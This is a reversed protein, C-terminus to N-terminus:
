DPVVLLMDAPSHSPSAGSHPREAATKDIALEFAMLQPRWALRVRCPQGICISCSCGCSDAMKTPYPQPHRTEILRALGTVLSEAYKGYGAAYEAIFLLLVVCSCNSIENM